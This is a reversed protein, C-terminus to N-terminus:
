NTGMVLRYLVFGILFLGIVLGTYEGSEVDKEGFHYGLNRNQFDYAARSFSKRWVIAAIGLILGITNFLM